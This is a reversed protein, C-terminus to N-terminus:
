LLVHFYLKYESCYTWGNPGLFTIESYFGNSTYSIGCFNYCDEVFHLWITAILAVLSLKWQDKIDFNIIAAPADARFYLNNATCVNM